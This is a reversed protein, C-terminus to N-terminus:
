PAQIDILVTASYTDPPAADINGASITGTVVATRNVGMGGGAGGSVLSISAALTNPPTLGNLTVNAAPPAASYGGGAIQFEPVTGNTCRYILNANGSAPTGLAPDIIGGSNAITMNYSTTQFRCAANVQASVQVSAQPGVQASVEVSILGVLALGAILINKMLKASM